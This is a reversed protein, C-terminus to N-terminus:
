LNKEYKAKKLFPLREYEAILLLVIGPIILIINPLWMAWYPSFNRRDAFEEGTLFLIYYASFLLIGLLLGAIGGRRFLYGLPAGMILFVLCAFALSFKKNLEILYRARNRLKSNLISIKQEIQFRIVRTKEIEGTIYKNIAEMGTAHIEKKIREIEDNVSKINNLLGALNLEDDSRAKRDKRVFETNMPLNIIQKEFKTRQYKENDVLQHLEGNYLVFQMIDEEALSYLNGTPAIIIMNNRLDYITVNYIAGTKEIKKGIYITYGPFENSFVGDQIRVAPRKRAVDYMINRARHNAEPLIYHNFFILFAMIISILIAPTKLMRFFSIGGAKLALIENDHSFRGFSMVIAILIAMPTTYSVILPLHYILVQIVIDLPLGKRVFLDVLRFLQDMLLIFTLAFISFFFPPVFEKIFYRDLLRM